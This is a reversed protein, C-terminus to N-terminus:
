ASSGFPDKAEKGNSECPVHSEVHMLHGDIIDMLFRLNRLMRKVDELFALFNNKEVQKDMLILGLLTNM